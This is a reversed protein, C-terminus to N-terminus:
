ASVNTGEGVFHSLLEAAARVQRFDAAGGHAFKRELLSEPKFFQGFGCAVAFEFGADDLKFMEEGIKWADGNKRYDFLAHTM